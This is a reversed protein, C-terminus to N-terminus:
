SERLEILSQSSEDSSKGGGGGKMKRALTKEEYKGGRRLHDRRVKNVVDISKKLRKRAAM